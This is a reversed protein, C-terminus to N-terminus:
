SLNDKTWIAFPSLCCSSASLLLGVRHVTRRNLFLFLLGNMTRMSFCDLNLLSFSKKMQRECSPVVVYEDFSCCRRLCYRLLSNNNASVASAMTMERLAARLQPVITRQCIGWKLMGGAVGFCFEGCYSQLCSVSLWNSKYSLAFLGACSILVGM